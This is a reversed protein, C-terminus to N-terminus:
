RWRIIGRVTKLHAEIKLFKPIGKWLLQVASLVETVVTPLGAVNITESVSALCCTLLLSLCPILDERKEESVM